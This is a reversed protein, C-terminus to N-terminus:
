DHKKLTEKLRAKVEPSMEGRMQEVGHDCSEHLAKRLFSLQDRYRECWVCILFHFRMAIRTRLPLPREMSESILRTMDHCKPTHEAIFTVVKEKLWNTPEIV